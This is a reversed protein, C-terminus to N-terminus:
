LCSFFTFLYGMKNLIGMLCTCMCFVHKMEARLAFISILFAYGSKIKKRIQSNEHYTCRSKTSRYFYRGESHIVVIGINLVSLSSMM